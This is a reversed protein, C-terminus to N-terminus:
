QPFFILAQEYLRPFRVVAGLCRGSTFNFAVVEDQAVCYLNGAPSRM